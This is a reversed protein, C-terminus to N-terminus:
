KAREKKGDVAFTSPYPHGPLTLIVRQGEQDILVSGESRGHGCCCGTTHIGYDNLMQVLPAICADVDVETRGSVSLPYALRVSMDTGWKCMAARLSPM